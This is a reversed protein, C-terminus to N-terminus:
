RKKNKRKGGSPTSSVDFGDSGANDLNADRNVQSSHSSFTPDLWKKLFQPMQQDKFLFWATVLAGIIIPLIFVMSSAKRTSKQANATKNLVLRVSKFYDDAVLTHSVKKQPAFKDPITEVHINYKKNDKPIRPLPVLQGTVAKTNFTFSNDNMSTMSIKLQSAQTPKPHETVKLHADMTEFARMAVLPKALTHDSETMSVTVESPILKEVSEGHLLKISYDCKPTLGRFRFTGDSETIAEETTSESCKTTSARLTISPEPQGNLSVIKGFISFAIRKASLTIEANEGEKLQQLKHKPNFEYEKFQPKIFYEGPAM